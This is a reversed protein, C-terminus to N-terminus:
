RRYLGITTADRVCRRYAGGIDKWKCTAKDNRMACYLHGMGCYYDMLGGLPDMWSCLSTRCGCNPGYYKRLGSRESHSLSKWLKIWNCSFIELEKGDMYGGLVYESGPELKAACDNDDTSITVEVPFVLDGPFDKLASSQRVRKEGKFIKLVQVTYHLVNRSWTKSPDERRPVTITKHQAGSTVLVRVVLCFFYIYIYSICSILTIFQLSKPVSLIIIKREKVYFFIM